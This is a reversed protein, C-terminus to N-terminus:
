TAEWWSWSDSQSNSKAHSLDHSATGPTAGLVCLGPGGLTAGLVAKESRIIEENFASHSEPKQFRTKRWLSFM